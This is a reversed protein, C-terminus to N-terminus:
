PIHRDWRTNYTRSIATHYTGAEDQMTCRIHLLEVNHAQRVKHQVDCKFYGYLMRRGWRASSMVHSTATHYINSTANWEMKITWLTWTVMSTWGCNELSLTISQPQSRAGHIIFVQVFIIDAVLEVNVHSLCLSGTLTSERPCIWDGQLHLYHTARFLLFLWFLNCPIFFCFIAMMEVVATFVQSCIITTIGRLHSRAMVHAYVFQSGERPMVGCLRASPWWITHEWM